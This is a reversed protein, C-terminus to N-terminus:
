RRRGILAERAGNLQAALGPTGGRDPHLTGILRKYAAQVEATTASPGVGLIARAEAPSMGGQRVADAVPRAARRRASVALGLAAIAMPIAVLWDERILLVLSASLLLVALLGATPRWFRFGGRLGAGLAHLRDHRTEKTRFASLAGLLLLGLALYIM